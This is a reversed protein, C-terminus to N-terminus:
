KSVKCGKGPDFKLGDGVQGVYLCESRELEEWWTGSPSADPHKDGSESTVKM